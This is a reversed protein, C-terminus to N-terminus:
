WRTFTMDEINCRCQVVYGSVAGQINMLTVCHVGLNKQYKAFQENTLLHRAVLGIRSGFSNKRLLRKSVVLLDRLSDVDRQM